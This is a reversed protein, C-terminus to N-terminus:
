YSCVVALYSPKVYFFFANSDLPLCITIPILSMCLVEIQTLCWFNMGSNQFELYSMKSSLHIRRLCDSLEKETSIGSANKISTESLPFQSVRKANADAFGESNLEFRRNQRQLETGNDRGANTRHPRTTAGAM